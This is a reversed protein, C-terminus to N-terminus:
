KFRILYSNFEGGLGDTLKQLDFAEQRGGTFAFPFSGYGCEFINDVNTFGHNALQAAVTGSHGARGALLRKGMGGHHVGM